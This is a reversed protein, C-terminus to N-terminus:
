TVAVESIGLEKTRAVMDNMEKPYQTYKWGLDYMINERVEEPIEYFFVGTIIGKEVLTESYRMISMMRSLEQSWPAEPKRLDFHFGAYLEPASVRYIQQEQYFHNHWTLPDTTFKEVSSRALVFHAVEFTSPIMIMEKGTKPIRENGYKDYLDAFPHLSEHTASM